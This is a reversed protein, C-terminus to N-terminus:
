KNKFFFWLIQLNEVYIKIERYVTEIDKEGSVIIVNDLDKILNLYNNRVKSLTKLNEFLDRETRGKIRELSIKPDIDIYFTLTPIKLFYNIMEQNYFRDNQYALTSLEFRDCIVNEKSSLENLHLLRDAHFLLSLVREDM